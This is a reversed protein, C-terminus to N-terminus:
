KTALKYVRIMRAHASAHTANTIGCVEFQPSKFVAGFVSPHLNPPLTVQSRVDNICVTGQQRAVAVALQRCHSLFETDRLEFMDLQSDRLARGVTASQTNAM